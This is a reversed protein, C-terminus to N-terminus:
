IKTTLGRYRKLQSPTANSDHPHLTQTTVTYRKLQSPTANSNHRLRTKTTELIPKKRSNAASIKLPKGASEM